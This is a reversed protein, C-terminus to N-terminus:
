ILEMKKIRKVKEKVYSNKLLNNLYDPLKPHQTRIKAYIKEKEVYCNQNKQKFARVFEKLELPPGARIEFEPLENKALFFYFHNVDGGSKKIDFPALWKELFKLVKLMKVGVVDEKGTLPQVEIHVLNLKKKEAEKKLESVTIEKKIFFDISPQQLYSKALKKFLNFKELGLAAAANRSKDVPDIVILPSQLKSKNLQLLAMKKQYYKEPDIIEKTTWKQSAKLLKEFSGYYAVLIELVYGSFGMIHSEAGYLNNAKCFQKALRIDDKLKKTHKNVWISHLPSIDTINVAEEAKNIKLIPIIEFVYNQYNLQFYDRSGHLKVMKRFLLKLKKEIIESLENSKQAYKHYDFVVFIDIDHNGSLWTDKAGSGGLITQAEKIRVKKLFNDSIHKFRAKEQKTPKILKLIEEM